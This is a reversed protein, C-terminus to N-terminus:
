QQSNKQCILCFAVAYDEIHSISSFVEKDKLFKKVAKKGFIKPVNNINRVEIDRLPFARNAAKIFSEKLAFRGAYHLYRKEKYKECYEIEKLSFVKTLSKKKKNKIMREIRKVDVIDIGIGYIM